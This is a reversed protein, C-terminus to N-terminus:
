TRKGMQELLFRKLADKWNPLSHFGSKTLKDKNLVSNKPRKAQQPVLKLYEETTVPHVEVDRGALRFIECAFEYWNCTGENTAHYVGYKETGIMDALLESLDPTYTPSGIQDCVVNLERKTEALRLMTKVFNNGNAGFVWSTRVIFYNTLAAMVQAEGEAKTAGYVSCPSVPDCPCYEGEKEGDFVYDTSIYLFKAGLEAAAEALYKTGLVNVTRCIKEETEARDVATYAACHIVAQPRIVKFYAHVATEDTIDFTDRDVGVVEYGRKKLALCVDYGLQGKAGTVLVLSSRKCRRLIERIKTDDGYICPSEAQREPFKGYALRIKLHNNRIYEELQEGLARPKGSCLEIIGAVEKQTVAAAIQRCLEDIHIFDFQNKGSTFPFEEKGEAEAQKLKCFVSNGFSDDGYIYYARLWQLVAGRERCLVGLAGRLANKAIGYKTVPATPTNEDVRGEHYGIEHMTGMVAIHKAGGDLLRRLFAYHASLQEIHADSNHFFGDKWALHLCVDPLGFRQYPHEESFIDALFFEARPDIHGASVDVAIVDHGADLLAKTAKAGIYGNAGTVLIRM